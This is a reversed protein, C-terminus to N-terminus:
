ESVKQYTSTSLELRHAWPANKWKGSQYDEHRGERKKKREVNPKIEHIPVISLSTRATSRECFSKSHRQAISTDFFEAIEDVSRTQTRAKQRSKVLLNEEEEEDKFLRSHKSKAKKFKGPAVKEAKLTSLIITDEDQLQYFGLTKTGKLIDGKVVKETLRADIHTDELHKEYRIEEFKKGTEIELKKRLEKQHVHSLVFM